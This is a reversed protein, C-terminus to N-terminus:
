INLLGINIRKLGQLVFSNQNYNSNIYVFSIYILNKQQKWIEIKGEINTCVSAKTLYYVKIEM